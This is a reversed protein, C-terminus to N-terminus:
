AKRRRSVIVAGVAALSLLYWWTQSGGTSCGGGGSDGGGSSSKPAVGTENVWITVIDTTSLGAADTVTLEFQLTDDVGPATFTPQVATPSSLAVTNAGTIQLWQYSLTDGTNPDSSASADLQVSAGWVVAFNPGANASPPLNLEVTVLVTDTDFDGRDDTVTVEFTVVENQTVAPATFTPQSATASSLSLTIAGATQVWAYTLPDAEPDTSGSADLQGTAGPLLGFDGGADAVPALNNTITVQVTDTDSDGRNDTATLQFVVVEDQAVSPATFTPQAASSNSLALSIAGSIQTWAYTVPDSEPDTTGTADLQGGNNERVGFDTGADAVPPLNNSVTVNVTDTDTLGSPDTVTLQFTVVQDQSVAPATFTPQAVTASSLNLAIAGGTQQWIYSVPDGDSDSSGTADLQGGSSERVTANSGADATPAANTRLDFEIALYALNGTNGSVTDTIKVTWTGQVYEYLFAAVDDDDQKTDPFVAIIDTEANLVGNNTTKLNVTTASPSTLTIALDGRREHYIRTHVRVGMVIRADNVSFTRSIGTTSNDPISVPTGSNVSDEKFVKQLGINHSSAIVFGTADNPVGTQPNAPISYGTVRLTWTGAAPSDVHVLEINDRRNPGATTFTYADDGSAVTTVGSYPYHIGGSPDELEIDLDNVLSISAGASAWVDLWDLVIHIPDSTGVNFTYEKVDGSRVTGRFIRDGGGAKDALILDAAAQCDVIGFGFRYDPGTNYQDRCTQALVARAVDPTFMQDNHEHRWLQSLLVVSGCVSPGSMSTGSLSQYADDASVVSSTLGVGNACFQPVLRGDLAPGRSSFGALAESDDAAAIIFGNRHANYTPVSCTPNGTGFPKAYTGGPKSTAYNGASQVQCLLLDRNTIDTEQTGANYQGWDDAGGTFDAYSHNDAVHNFSHRADRRESDINNWLHVLACAKPAYGEATANGTGDGVITGTVHGAHYFMSATTNVNYVRSTSPWGAPATVGALGGYQEHTMRAVGGDWVGAVQGDGDLNYPSVGIIAPTANSMAASTQNTSVKFGSLTVQEVLNSAFVARAGADDVRLTVFPSAGALSGDLIVAEADDLLGSAQQLTVDRWFLVRYEGSLNGKDLRAYIDATLKDEPRQLLTGVVAPEGALIAAMSELSSAGGARLIHTHPNCYGVFSAGAAALSDAFARTLDRDLRVYFPEGADTPMPRSPEALAFRSDLRILRARQEPALALEFAAQASYDFPAGSDLRTSAPDDGPGQQGQLDHPRIALFVAALAVVAALAYASKTRM